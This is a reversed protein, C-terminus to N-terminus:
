HLILRRSSSWRCMGSLGAEEVVHSDSGWIEGSKVRKSNFAITRRALATPSFEAYGYSAWIAISTINM